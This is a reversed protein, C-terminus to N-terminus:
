RCQATAPSGTNNVDNPLSQCLTSNSNGPLFPFIRILFLNPYSYLSDKLTSLCDRKREKKVRYLKLLALLLSLLFWKEKCKASFYQCQCLHSIGNGRQEVPDISSQLTNAFSYILTTTLFLSGAHYTITDPLFAVQFLM